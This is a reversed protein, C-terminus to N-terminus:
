KGLCAQRVWSCGIHKIVGLHSTRLCFACWSEHEGEFPCICSSHLRTSILAQGVYSMGNELFELISRALTWWEPWHKILKNWIQSLITMTAKNKGLPSLMAIFIIKITPTVVVHLGKEFPRLMLLVSFWQGLPEVVEWCMAPPPSLSWVYAM